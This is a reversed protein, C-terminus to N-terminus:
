RIPSAAIVPQMSCLGRNASRFDASLKEEDCGCLCLVAILGAFRSYKDRM